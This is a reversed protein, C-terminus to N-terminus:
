PIKIAPLRVVFASGQGPTSNVELIGHLKEIFEKTLKLGIGGSGAKMREWSFLNAIQEGTLGGGNDKVTLTIDDENGSASILIRDKEPSFKVANSVLNRIIIQLFNTDTVFSLNAPCDLHVIIHKQATQITHIKIVETLFTRVDIPELSLEFHEMQSKAWILLDEMLEALNEASQLMTQHYTPAFLADPHEVEPEQMKLFQFLSVVPSRLDHSIISFLKTKSQNAENLKENLVTLEENNESVQEVLTNLEENKENLAKNVEQKTRYSKWLLGAIILILAFGALLSYVVWKQNKLELQQTHNRADLLAIEQQKKESQYRAEMEAINKDSTEANISDHYASYVQQYRYARVFNGLAAESKALDRYSSAISSKRGVEMAISHALEFYHKAMRYKKQDFNVLGLQGYISLKNFKLDTNKLLNKCIQYYEEAQPYDKIELYITAIGSYCFVLLRTIKLKKAISIAKNAYAIGSQKKGIRECAIGMTRYSICAQLSEAKGTHDFYGLAQKYYEISKQYKGINFYFAGINVLNDTVSASDKTSQAIHLAKMYDALAKEYNGKDENLVGRFMLFKINTESLSDTRLYLSTELKKMLSSVSDMQGINEYSVALNLQARTRFGASEKIGSTLLKNFYYIASDFNSLNKYAYGTNYLSKAILSDIKANQSLRLAQLSVRKAEDYKEHTFCVEAYKDLATVKGSIAPYKGLEPPQSFFPQSGLLLIILIFFPKAMRKM